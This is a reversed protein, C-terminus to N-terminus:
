PLVSRLRTPGSGRKIPEPGESLMPPPDCSFPPCYGSARVQSFVAALKASVLM